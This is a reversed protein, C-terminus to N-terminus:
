KSFGIADIAIVDSKTRDFIFRISKLKAPQLKPEAKLFLALPIEFTQFVPEAPKKYFRAELYDWKTWRMKPVPQIAAVSSLPLRAAIGAADTLELTLDIPEKREKEKGKKEEPAKQKAEDKTKGKGAQATDDDPLKPNPDEATDAVSFVLRATDSLRWDRALGEPLTVAYAAPKAAQKAKDKAADKPEENNWGILAVKKKYPWNDRSKWEQQRWVTLNEGQQRGGPISTQTLDITKEFDAVRRYNSDEFQTFYVTAPLWKEIARYNRFMPVYESRGHLTAELFGAIYVKAIRRQEEGGLLVPKQNLILNIPPGSDFSGWVTNFQGHNARYAVVGAKMWYNGDTFKLRRFARYGAFWSVDADHTGQLVLYNVNQVPADENAPQYQGDIPAIAVLTKIAFNFDFTVSGDDPFRALHNFAAAHVVAEGGRSHGMLAINGMDVKGYFPNGPTQSWQRWAALHQLLLWGRAGNEGSYGGEWSSNMFNEDVSALIFGRSALLEGLYAYGPDSYQESQHNGHVVLVLPFPGPGEPYWVRANLPLEKPGFGWYWKRVKAKFGTLGKFLKRADVPKTKLSVKERFEARRRDTGSGYFLTSVKFPGPLGPNAAALPAVAAAPVPKQFEMYPDSGPWFLWWALGGAGGIALLALVGAVIRYSKKVGRRLVVALGAGLATGILILPLSVRFAFPPPGGFLAFVVVVCLVGGCFGGIFLRPWANLAKRALFALLIIALGLLAVALATAVVSLAVDAVAGLGTRMFAGMYALFAVAAAIAGITAGPWAAASFGCVEDKARKLPAKLRRFKAVVRKRFPLKPPTEPQTTEPIPGPAAGTAM